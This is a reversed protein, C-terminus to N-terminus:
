ARRFKLLTYYPMARGLIELALRGVRTRCLRVGVFSRHFDILNGGKTVSVLHFDFAHAAAIVADRDHSYAFVSKKISLVRRAAVSKAIWALHREVPMFIGHFLRAVISRSVLLDLYFHGGSVLTASAYRMVAAIRIDDLLPSLGLCLVARAQLVAPDVTPDVIRFDLEHFLSKLQDLWPPDSQDSCIIRRGLRELAMEIACTGSALSLIGEREELVNAIMDLATQPRGGQHDGLFTEFFAQPSKPFQRGQTLEAFHDRPGSPPAGIVFDRLPLAKRPKSRPGEIRGSSGINLLSRRSLAARKV